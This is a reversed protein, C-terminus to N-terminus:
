IMGTLITELDSTNIFLADPVKAKAKELAEDKGDIFIIPTARTAKFSKLAQATERGHSPLRTLYIVVARPPNTKISNWARVGDRSEVEVEWGSSRLPEALAEAESENWHILFLRGRYEM